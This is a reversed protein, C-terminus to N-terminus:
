IDVVKTIDYKLKAFGIGGAGDNILACGGGGYGAVADKGAGVGYSGGGGCIFGNDIITKGGNSIGSNGYDSYIFDDPM